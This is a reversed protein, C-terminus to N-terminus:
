PAQLKELRIRTIKSQEAAAIELETEPDNGLRANLHALMQEASKGTACVVFIHGFRERYRVNGDRLALLTSERAGAVAAQEQGSWEATDAFRQRLAELNTGIEPHAALAELVDARRMRAWVDDACRLLTEDGGFPRRQLMQDVWRSAGCCRLLMARAERPTAADLMAAVSM